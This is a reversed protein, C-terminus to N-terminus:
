TSCREQRAAALKAFGGRVKDATPGARLAALAERASNMRETHGAFPRLSNAAALGALEGGVMASSAEEVGGADGAVFIGPVTTQMQHDHWPVYGGLEPIYSIECGALVALEVLPSLGVALCVLDCELEFESGPVPRWAADVKVVRVGRVCDQGLAEVVTSSTHIPVGARALKAAHVWYGGVRPAAEIVAVVQVGAQILQYGVILGINGAGIMVARQGPLVGHVNMLTQVAGAGYVGPLDNNPFALAKESAGTALIVREAKVTALGHPREVLIVGDQQYYGIVTSDLWVETNPSGSVQAALARGIEFGRTGAHQAKSGFFRHTQKILQGGLVTQRDIVLIRHGQEAAAIAASLGAPGGGIIAIDTTHMM